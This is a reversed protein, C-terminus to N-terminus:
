TTTLWPMGAKAKMALMKAAKNPLAILSIEIGIEAAMKRVSAIAYAARRGELRAAKKMIRDVRKRLKSSQRRLIVIRMIGFLNPSRDGLVEVFWTALELTEQVISECYGKM